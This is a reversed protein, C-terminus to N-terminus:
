LYQWMWHYWGQRTDHNKWFISLNMTLFHEILCNSFYEVIVTASKGM